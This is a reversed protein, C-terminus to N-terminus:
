PVTDKISHFLTIHMKYFTDIVLTLSRM